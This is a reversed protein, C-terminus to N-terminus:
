MKQLHAICEYDFQNYAHTQAVDCACRAEPALIYQRVAPHGEVLVKSLHQAVSATSDAAPLSMGALPSAQRNIAAKLSTALCCPSLQGDQM